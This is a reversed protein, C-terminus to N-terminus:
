KLLKLVVPVATRQPETQESFSFFMGTTGAEGGEGALTSHCGVSSEWAQLATEIM